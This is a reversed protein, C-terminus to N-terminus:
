DAPRSGEVRLDLLGDGVRAVLQQGEVVQDRSRVLRGDVQYLLSYGRAVTALPSIGTLYRVQEALALNSKDVKQLATRQLSRKAIQLRMQAEALRVQPSLGKLRNSSLALKHLRIALARGGASVARQQLHKLKDRLRAFPALIQEAAATPTACRLDAALDSIPTDIEHGIASIVPTRLAVLTRALKEDNFCFLDQFSGGGRTLLILDNAPEADARQLAKIISAPASEGQVLTPYVVVRGPYHHRAFVKQVDEIAAGTPSTILAIQRPYNPIAKKREAAFLGEARLRAVLEEYAKHLAGWGLPELHGLVLQLEGRAEYMGMRGSVLLQDGVAPRALRLNDQRFMVCRVQAQDDKLTLYWHGSAPSTMSAVEGTLWVHGIEQELVGRTRQCLESISYIRRVPEAAHSERM